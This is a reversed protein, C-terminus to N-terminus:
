SNRYINLDVIKYEEVFKQYYEKIEDLNTKDDYRNKYFGIICSTM